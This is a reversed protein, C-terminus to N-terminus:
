NNELELVTIHNGRSTYMDIIEEFPQSINTTMIYIDVNWLIDLDQRLLWLFSCGDAMRIAAMEKLIEMYHSHGRGMPFRIHNARGLARCNAAFGVSFGLSISNWVMDSSYSLAQEMLSSYAETTLPHTYHQGFDIYIMINRNSFFDKNNVKVVGTKATAKHNIARLTDGHRYDRIGSFSFPDQFLRRDTKYTNQIENEMPNSEGYPLAKPYVHMVAKANRSNGNISVSELQYYGRKKCIIEISRKVQTFPPLYFRSTFQQMGFEEAVYDRLRLDNNLNAYVDVKILPLFFRNSIEEILFVSGGEFVGDESFYRKYEVRRIGVRRAFYYVLIILIIILM